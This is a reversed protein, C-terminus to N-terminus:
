FKRPYLTQPTLRFGAHSLQRLHIILPRLSFFFPPPSQSYPHIFSHIFSHPLSILINWGTKQYVTSYISGQSEDPCPSTSHHLNNFQEFVVECM